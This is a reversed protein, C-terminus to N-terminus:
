KIIEKSYKSKAYSDTEGSFVRVFIVTSFYNCLHVTFFLVKVFYMLYNIHITTFVNSSLKTKYVLRINCVCKHPLGTMSAFLGEFLDFRKNM